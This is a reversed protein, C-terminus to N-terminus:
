AGLREDQLALVSPSPFKMYWLFNYLVALAGIVNGHYGLRLFGGGVKMEAVTFQFGNYRCSYVQRHLFLFFFINFFLYLVPVSSSTGLGM